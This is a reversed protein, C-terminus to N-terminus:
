PISLFVQSYMINCFKAGLGVCGRRISSDNATLYKSGEIYIQHHGSKTTLSLYYEKNKKLPFERQAITTWIGGYRKILELKQKFLCIHLSYYNRENMFLFYIIAGGEPPKLSDTLIKFKLNLTFTQWSRPGIISLNESYKVTPKCHYIITDQSLKEWTGSFVRWSDKRRLFMSIWRQPRSSLSLLDLRMSYPKPDKKKLNHSRQERPIYVPNPPASSKTKSYERM